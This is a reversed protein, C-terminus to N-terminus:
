APFSNTVVIHATAEESSVLTTTFPGCFSRCTVAVLGGEGRGGGAELYAEQGEEAAAGRGQVGDREGQFEEGCGSGAVRM